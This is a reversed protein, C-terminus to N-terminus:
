AEQGDVEFAIRREKAAVVEVESAANHECALESSSGSADFCAVQQLLVIQEQRPATVCGMGNKPSGRRAFITVM